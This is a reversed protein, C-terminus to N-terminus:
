SSPGDARTRFSTAFSRQVPMTRAVTARQATSIATAVNPGGGLTTGFLDGNAAQVLGAVPYNGDACYGNSNLSACFSHLVTLTQAHAAPAVLAASVFALALTAAAKSM